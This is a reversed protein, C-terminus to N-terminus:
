PCDAPIPTHSSFGLLPSANLAANGAVRPVRARLNFLETAHGRLHAASRASSAPAAKATAAACVVGAPVTAVVVRAPAPAPNPSAAAPVLADKQNGRPMTNSALPFANTASALLWRTRRTSGMPATVVNTPPLEVSHGKEPANKSPTPVFARKEEGVSTASSVPPFRYTASEALLRRRLTVGAPATVEMAPVPTAPNASPGPALADNERGQPTATSAVATYTASVPLLRMRLTIKDAAPGGSTHVTDESAPPPTVRKKSPVPM